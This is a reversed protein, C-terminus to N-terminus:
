MCFNKGRERECVCTMAMYSNLLEKLAECLNLHRSIHRSDQQFKYLFTLYKTAKIYSVESLM